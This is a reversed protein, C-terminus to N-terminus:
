SVVGRLRNEFTEEMFFMAIIVVLSVLSIAAKGRKRPPAGIQIAQRGVALFLDVVVTFLCMLLTLVSM